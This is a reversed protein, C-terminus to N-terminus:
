VDLEELEHAYEQQQLTVCIVDPQQQTVRTVDPLIVDLRENAISPGVAEPLDSRAISVARHRAAETSPEAARHPHKGARHSPEATGHTPEAAETSITDISEM